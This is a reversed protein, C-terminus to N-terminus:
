DLEFIVIEHDDLRPVIVTAGGPHHSVSLAAESTALRAARVQEGAGLALTVNIDSVPVLTRGIQRWGTNLPKGVPFNVLHVMRRRPQTMLTAEVFDPAAVEIPQPAGAAWR